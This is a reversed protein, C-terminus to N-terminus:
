GDKLLGQNVEYYDNHKLFIFIQLILLNGVSNKKSNSVFTLLDLDNDGFEKNKSLDRLGLPM